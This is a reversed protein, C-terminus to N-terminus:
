KKIAPITMLKVLANGLKKAPVRVKVCADCTFALQLLACHSLQPRFQHPFGGNKWVERFLDFVVNDINYTQVILSTEHRLYKIAIHTSISSICWSCVFVGALMAFVRMLKMEENSARQHSYPLSRVLSDQIPTCFEIPDDNMFAFCSVVIILAFIFPPLCMYFVYPLNTFMRHTLPITVAFLFDLSLMFFVASQGMMAFLYIFTHQFCKSRTLAHFRLRHTDIYLECLLCVAHLSALVAFM